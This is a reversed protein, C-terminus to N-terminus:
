LFGGLCFPVPWLISYFGLFVLSWIRHFCDKTHPRSLAARTHKHLSLATATGPPPAFTTTAFSFLFYRPQFASDPFLPLSFCPILSCGSIVCLSQAPPLAPVCRSKHLRPSSAPRPWSSAASPPTWPHTLLPLFLVPFSAAQLAQPSLPDALFLEQAISPLIAAWHIM